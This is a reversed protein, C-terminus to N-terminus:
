LDICRSLALRLGAGIEAPSNELSLIVKDNGGRGTGGWAELKEHRSPSINIVGNVCHISCYKMDKFLSKKSKYGYKERLMANRETYRQKGKELDFLEVRDEISTLTRSDSLAQLIAKGISEDDSEPSLLHPPFLPDMAVRGLGSYTEISIFEPTCFICVWYDQDKNFTM